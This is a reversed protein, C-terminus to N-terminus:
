FAHSAGGSLPPAKRQYSGKVRDDPAGADTITIWAVLQGGGRTDQSHATALGSQVLETLLAVPFGHARMDAETRGDPHRAVIVLARRRDDSLSMQVGTLGLAGKKVDDYIHVQTSSDV